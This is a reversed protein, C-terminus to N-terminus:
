SIRRRERISHLRRRSRATAGKPRSPPLWAVNSHQGHQTQEESAAAASPGHWATGGVPDPTGQQAGRDAGRCELGRGPLCARQPDRAGREGRRFRDLLHHSSRVGASEVGQQHLHTAAAVRIIRAGDFRAGRLQGRPGCEIRERGDDCLRVRGTQLHVRPHRHVQHRAGHAQRGRAIVDDEAGRFPQHHRALEGRLHLLEIEPARRIDAPQRPPRPGIGLLHFAEVGRRQM